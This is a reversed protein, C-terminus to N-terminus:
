QLRLKMPLLFLKIDLAAISYAKLFPAVMKFM